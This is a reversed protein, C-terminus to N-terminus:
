QLNLYVQYWFDLTNQPITSTDYDLEFVEILTFGNLSPQPTDLAYIVTRDVITHNTDEIHILSSSFLMITLTALGVISITKIIFTKM